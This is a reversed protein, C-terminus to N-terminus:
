ISNINNYKYTKLLLYIFYLLTFIRVSYYYIKHGFNESRSLIIMIHLSRAEM